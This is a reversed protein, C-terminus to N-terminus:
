CECAQSGRGGEQSAGPASGSTQWCCRQNVDSWHGNLHLVQRTREDPEIGLYYFVGARPQDWNVLDCWFPSEDEGLVDVLADEYGNWRYFALVCAGPVYALALNVAGNRNAMITDKTGDTLLYARISNTPDGSPTSQDVVVFGAAM